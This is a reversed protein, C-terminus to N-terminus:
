YVEQIHMLQWVRAKIRHCRQKKEVRAHAGQAVVDLVGAPTARVHFTKPTRSYPM